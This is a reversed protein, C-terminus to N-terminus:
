IIGDAVMDERTYNVSFDLVSSHLEIVAVTPFIRLASIGIDKPNDALWGFAERTHTHIILIEGESNRNLSLEAEGPTLY